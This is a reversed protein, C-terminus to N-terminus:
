VAHYKVVTNIKDLWSGFVILEAQIVAINCFNIYKFLKCHAQFYNVLTTPPIFHPWYIVIELSVKHSTEIYQVFMISCTITLPVCATTILVNVKECILIIALLCTKNRKNRVRNDDVRGPKIYWCTAHATKMYKLLQFYQQSKSLKVKQIGLLFYTCM